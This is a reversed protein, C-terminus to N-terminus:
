EARSTVAKPARRLDGSLLEMFAGVYVWAAIDSMSPGVVAFSHRMHAVPCELGSFVDDSDEGDNEEQLSHANRARSAQKDATATSRHRDLKFWQVLTPFKDRLWPHLLTGVAGGSDIANAYRRDAVVWAVWGAVTGVLLVSVAIFQANSGRFRFFTAMAFQYFVLLVVLDGAVQKGLRGRFNAGLMDAGTAGARRGRMRVPVVDVSPQRAMAPHTPVAAGGSSDGEGAAAPAVAGITASSLSMHLGSCLRVIPEGAARSEVEPDREDVRHEVAVVDNGYLEQLVVSLHFKDVAYKIATCCALCITLLAVADLAAVAGPRM